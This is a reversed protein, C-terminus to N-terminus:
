RSLEKAKDLADKIGANVKEVKEKQQMLYQKVEDESMGEHDPEFQRMWVFMSNYAEEVEKSTNRLASITEEHLSSDEQELEEARELLSEQYSKLQGMVPMVEDHIAIVENQLKENENEQV